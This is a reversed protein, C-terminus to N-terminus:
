AKARGLIKIERDSYRETRFGHRDLIGRVQTVAWGDKASTEGSVFMYAYQRAPDDPLTAPPFGMITTNIKLRMCHPTLLNAAEM